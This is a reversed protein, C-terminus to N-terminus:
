PAGELAPPAPAVAFLLDSVGSDACARMVKRVAGFAAQEDGRLHIRVRGNATRRAVFASVEAPTAVSGHLIIEGSKRVNITIDREVMRFARGEAAEPVTVDSVEIRAFTMVLMFFIILQFVIDILPTMNPAFGFKRKTHLLKM